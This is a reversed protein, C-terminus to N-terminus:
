RAAGHPQRPKRKETMESLVEGLARLSEESVLAWPGLQYRVSAVLSQALIRLYEADDPTWTGDHWCRMAAPADAIVARVEAIDARLTECERVIQKGLSKDIM